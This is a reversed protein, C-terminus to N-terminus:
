LRMPMIVYRSKKEGPESVLTSASSTTFGFEIIESKVVSLVDQLYGANFAIVLKEGEYQGSFVEEAEENEPNHAFLRLTEADAELRIGRFKENALISVRALSERFSTRDVRLKCTSIVPIVRNYDPFEGDILKTTLIIDGMRFKAHSEGLTIDLGAEVPGLLRELENISKRPLIVNRNSEISLEPMACESLALRHGDTGVARLLNSEVELLLGTLYYRVDQQAMAFSTRKLLEALSQAPVQFTVGQNKGEIYPFEDAPLTSLVFRSYGSELRLRSDKSKLILTSGEPLAKCIDLLKRAPSTVTGPDIVKGNLAASMEMELDTTTLQLRSESTTKICVNALIPLTQRKEVVGIIGQLPRLLDERLLEIYM